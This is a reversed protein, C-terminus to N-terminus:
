RLSAALFGKSALLQQPLLPFAWSNSFSSDLGMHSVKRHPKGLAPLPHTYLSTRRLSILLKYTGHTSTRHYFETQANTSLTTRMPLVAELCLAQLRPLACASQLLVEPIGLLFVLISPAMHVLVTAIKTTMKMM